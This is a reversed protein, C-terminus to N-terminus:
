SCAPPNAPGNYCDIFVSYDALDVDGDNDFDADVTCSAAPPSAPGSYCDLFTGYDQVDVDGDNDFDTPTSTDIEANRVSRVYNYIRIADGQPGHGTPYDAPDGTKPDSRQCGAGHVDQWQGNMYGLGRGFAVYAAADGHDPYGVHTTSAWYYPYDTNGEENVISTVNFLPDIAASATTDPSRTYDLISQLEKANPLRWDNHGACTSNEAYALADEWLTGSGSDSQMWMLGTALDTITGDGNDVFNNVGYDTNGRVCMVLFTKMTGRNWWYGKIRGDAFNVGFLPEGDATSIYLTSSAYQSDIVREGASTDGYAFDFYDTDIFPQLNPCDAETPCASPDDGRFDILSYLEKITPLRWDNYGGFSEANLADPYTQVEPWTFKDDADIDGDRDTDPSRQWTLGTVNDYVTLGDSSLAYSPANGAYQADQGRFAEGAAPCTIAALADYCTAQGTDVIPYAGTPLEAITLAAANSTATGFDNSVVCRYSGADAEAVPNITYSANPAGPIDAEDKQWQYSLPETGSATVTFTVSSGPPATRSQPHQTITPPMDAGATVTFGGAMSFDLSGNPTTFTIAADKTGTAEGAPITFLATVTYQSSHTVSTGTLSGITVSDPLVGAPPAPPTDTDLTFTVLLSPTGQAASSPDIATIQNAAQGYALPCSLVAALALGRLATTTM